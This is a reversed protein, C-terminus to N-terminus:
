RQDSKKGIKVALVPILRFTFLIYEYEHGSLVM